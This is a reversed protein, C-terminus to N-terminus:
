VPAPATINGGTNADQTVESNTGTEQSLWAPEGYGSMTKPTKKNTPKPVVVTPVTITSLEVEAACAARFFFVVGVMASADM